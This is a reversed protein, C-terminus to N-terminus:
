GLRTSRALNAKIGTAEGGYAGDQSRVQAVSSKLKKKAQEFRMRRKVRPNRQEKTRRPMMGKNKLIQYNVNRKTDMEVDADEARNAEVMMKVKDELAQQKRMKKESKKQEQARKVALYYDDEKSEGHDSGLDSDLDSGFQDARARVDAATKDDYRLDELRKKTKYPIDIDGSLTSKNARKTHAQAVRKAHHRLRRIARAKDEADGEDLQEAEGFDGETAQQKRQKKKLKKQEQKLMSQLEAYSDTSPAAELFATAKKAKKKSKKPKVVPEVESESSAMDVDSQEDAVAAAEALASEDVGGVTGTALEDAFMRLVPALRTQLADMMEIRRRFEVLSGIVPHDRLAVGGRAEPESARLVLYVAVNNLYSMLLQYKTLYFAMAPHEQASVGLEEARDLVPKVDERVADWYSQVDGCLALLEPAEAQLIKMKEKEPLKQLADRKATSLDYQGDATLSVRSLDIQASSDDVSSVLRSVGSDGADVGLEAGFEDIFDAEDLAELQKKQLRLAEEEEEKAAAEDDDTDTGIDDADYYNYKQKGWAGDEDENEAAEDEGGSYFNDEEEDDQESESSSLNATKVAM